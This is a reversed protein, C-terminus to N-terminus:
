AMRPAQGVAYRRSIEGGPEWEAKVPGIRERLLSVSEREDDSSPRKEASIRTLGSTVPSLVSVARKFWVRQLPVLM